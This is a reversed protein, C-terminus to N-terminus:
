PAWSLRWPACLIGSMGSVAASDVRRGMGPWFTMHARPSLVGVTPTSDSGRASSM